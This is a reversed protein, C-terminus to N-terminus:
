GQRGVGPVPDVVGHLGVHPEVGRAAPGVDGAGVKAAAGELGDDGALHLAAEQAGPDLGPAVVSRREHVLDALQDDGGRHRGHRQVEPAVLVAPAVVVGVEGREGPHPAVAVEDGDGAPTRRDDM